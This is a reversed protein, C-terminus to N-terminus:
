YKAVTSGLFDVLSEDDSFEELALRNDGCKLFLRDKLLKGKVAEQDIQVHVINKTNSDHAEIFFVDPLDYLQCLALTLLSSGLEHIPYYQTLVKFSEPFIRRFKGNCVLEGSPVCRLLIEIHERREENTSPDGFIYRDGCSDVVIYIHTGTFIM